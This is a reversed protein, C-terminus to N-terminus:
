DTQDTGATSAIKGQGGRSLLVVPASDAADAAWARRTAAGPHTHRAPRLRPRAPAAAPDAQASQTQRRGREFQRDPEVGRGALARGARRGAIGPAAASLRIAVDPAFAHRRRAARSHASFRAGLDVAVRFRGPYFACVVRRRIPTPHVHPLPFLTSIRSDVGM